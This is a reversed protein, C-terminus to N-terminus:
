QQKVSEANKTGHFVQVSPREGTNEPPPAPGILAGSVDGAWVPKRSSDGGGAASADGLARAGGRLALTLKGLEGAVNLKEAQESSVELTITRAPADKPGEIALVRLDEAITESVSRRSAPADGKFTQTLIVDVRDGSSLPGSGAPTPITIARNGSLLVVRLFDREGPKVLNGRVIPAGAPLDNRVAAGRLEARAEEDAEPKAERKAASPRVTEGIFGADGPPAWWRVDEARLLTGAGLPAAAVLIERAPASASTSAGQNASPPMARIVVFAAVGVSLLFLIALLTKAPM